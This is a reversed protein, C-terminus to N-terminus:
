LLLETGHKKITFELARLTLGFVKSSIPVRGQNLAQRYIISPAQCNSLLCVNTLYM